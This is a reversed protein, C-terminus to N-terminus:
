GAGIAALVAIAAEEAGPKAIMGVFMEVVVGGLEAGM